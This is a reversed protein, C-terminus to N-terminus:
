VLNSPPQLTLPLADRRVTWGREFPERVRGGLRPGHLRPDRLLQLAEHRTETGGHVGDFGWRQIIGPTEASCAGHPYSFATVRRNLMGELAQKSGAIEGEQDPPSLRSLMTHTRSHSGIDFRPCCALSRLQDPTM